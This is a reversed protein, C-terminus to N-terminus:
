SSATWFSLGLTGVVMALTIAMLMRTHLRQPLLHM